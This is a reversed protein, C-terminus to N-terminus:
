WKALLTRSHTPKPCETSQNAYEEDIGNIPQVRVLPGEKEKSSFKSFDAEACTDFTKGWIARYSTTVPTQGSKKPFQLSM